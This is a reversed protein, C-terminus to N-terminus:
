VYPMVPLDLNKCMVLAEERNDQYYDPRRAIEYYNLAQYLHLAATNSPRVELLIRQGGKTRAHKEIALLLARAIGQSRHAEQVALNMIHAEDFVVWSGVYGVVKRQKLCVLYHAWQNKLQALYSDLSWPLAFSAQEIEMVDPMDLITMPRIQYDMM